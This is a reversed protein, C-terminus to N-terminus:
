ETCRRNQNQLRLRFPFYQEPLSGFMRVFKALGPGLDLSTFVARPKYRMDDKILFKPGKKCVVLIIKNM